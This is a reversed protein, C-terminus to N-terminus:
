AKVEQVTIVAVSPTAHISFGDRSKEIQGLNYFFEQHSNTTIIEGTKTPITTENM